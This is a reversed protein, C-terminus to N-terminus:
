VYSLEDMKNWYHFALPLIKAENGPDGMCLCILLSCSPLPRPILSTPDVRCDAGNSCPNSACEDHDTECNRGYFGPACDCTYYGILDQMSHM